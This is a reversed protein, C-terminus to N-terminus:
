TKISDVKERKIKRTELKIKFDLFTIEKIYFKFM